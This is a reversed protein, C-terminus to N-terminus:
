PSTPSSATAARRPLNPATRCMPAPSYSSPRKSGATRLQEIMTITTMMMTMLHHPFTPPSVDAKRHHPFSPLPSPPFFTSCRYIKIAYAKLGPVFSQRERTKTRPLLGPPPPLYFFVRACDRSDNLLHCRGHPPTSFSPLGFARAGGERARM